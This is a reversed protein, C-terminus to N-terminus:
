HAKYYKNRMINKMFVIMCKDKENWTVDEVQGLLLCESMEQIQHDNLGRVEGQITHNFNPILFSEGVM